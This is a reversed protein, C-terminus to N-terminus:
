RKGGIGYQIKERPSLASLNVLTREPAGAPVRRSAIEAELGQRVKSLITRAQELSANIDDITNGTILEELVGPNSKVVLAKYSSVAQALKSELEAVVQELEAVRANAKVLEEDKEALLGELEAVRARVQELEEATNVQNPENEVTELLGSEQPLNDDPL